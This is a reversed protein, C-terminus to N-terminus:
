IEGVVEMKQGVRRMQPQAFLAKAAWTDDIESTIQKAKM